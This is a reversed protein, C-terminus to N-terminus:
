REGYSLWLGLAYEKFCSSKNNNEEGYEVQKSAQYHKPDNWWNKIYLDVYM